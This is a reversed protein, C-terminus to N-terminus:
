RDFAAKVVPWVGPVHGLWRVSRLLPLERLATAYLTHGTVTRGDLVLSVERGHDGPTYTGQGALDLARLLAAKRVSAADHPDYHVVFKRGAGPEVGIRARVVQAPFYCLVLAFMYMSFVCLGMIIAIGTHLLVSGTVAIPRAKTWVLFPLGVEVALTFAVVSACVLAIVLRNEALQRIFEEYVRYRIPGFEPNVLTMWAADHKWWGPGKLKSIGSSLYIFCFHVQFMRVAFNALWSPQPGALTAEAWQGPHGGGMLARAARYRARLADLSFAAGSPGVMLYTMLITQMTDQGFVIVPSRHVYCLTLAWALVSTVRTWLGLTFLAFVVLAAAHATWMTAPDTMHLWHSFQQTGKTLVQRPDGGWMHVFSLWEDRTAPDAPLSLDKGDEKLTGTLFQVFRARREAPESQYGSLWGLIYEFQTTDFPEGSPSNFTKLFEQIEAWVKVREDPTLTRMFDPFYSIPSDKVEFPDSKLVKEVRAQEAPDDVLRIASNLLYIGENFPDPRRHDGSGVPQRALTALYKLKAERAKPDEPLARLYALQAARRHPVDEIRLTPVIFSGDLPPVDVPTERRQRNSIAHNLWADPGLFAQLDFSYAAHTYLVLLGTLVRMFGLTSPDTPSFFFRGVAGLFGNRQDTM